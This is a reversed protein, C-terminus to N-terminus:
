NRIAVAEDSRVDTFDSAGCKDRVEEATDYILSPLKESSTESKAAIM